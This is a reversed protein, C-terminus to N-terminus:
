GYDDSVSWPDCLQVSFPTQTQPLLCVLYSVVVVGSSVSLLWEAQWHCCILFIKGPNKQKYTTMHFNIIFMKFYWDDFTRWRTIIPFLQCWLYLAWPVCSLGQPQRFIKKRTFSSISPFWGAGVDVWGSTSDVLRSRDFDMVKKTVKFDLKSCIIKYMNNYTVKTWRLQRINVGDRM